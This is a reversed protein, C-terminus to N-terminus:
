EIARHYDLLPSFLAEAPSDAEYRATVAEPNVARYNAISHPCGLRGKKNRKGISHIPMFSVVDVGMARIRPLDDEVDAFTGNPGHNGTYAEYLVLNRCSSRTDPAV